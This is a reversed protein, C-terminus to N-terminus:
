TDLHGQALYQYLFHQGCSSVLLHPIISSFHCRTSLRGHIIVLTLVSVRVCPLCPYDSVPSVRTCLFVLDPFLVCVPLLLHFCLYVIYKKVFTFSNVGLINKGM